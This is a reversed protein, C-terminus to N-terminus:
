CHASQMDVLGYIVFTQSCCSGNVAAPCACTSEAPRQDFHVDQWDSFYQQDWSMQIFTQHFEPFLNVLTM